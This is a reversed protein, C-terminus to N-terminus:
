LGLAPGPVVVSPRHFPKAALPVGQAAGHSQPAGRTAAAPRVYASDHRDNRLALRDRWGADDLPTPVDRLAVMREGDPRDSDAFAVVPLFAILLALVALSRLTM